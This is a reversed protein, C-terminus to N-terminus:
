RGVMSRSIPRRGGIGMRGTQLATTLPYATSNPYGILNTGGMPWITFPFPPNSEVPPDGRYPPAPGTDPGPHWDDSYAKALRSWFGKPAPQAELPDSNAPTAGAAPGPAPTQSGAQDQSSDSQAWAPWVAVLAVALLGIRPNRSIM